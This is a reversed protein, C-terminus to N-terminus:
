GAEDGAARANGLRGACVGPFQTRRHHCVRSHRHAGDVLVAGCPHGIGVIIACGEAVALPDNDIVFLCWRSM